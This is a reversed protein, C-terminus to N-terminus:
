CIPVTGDETGSELQATDSSAMICSLADVEIDVLPPITNGKSESQPTFVDVIPPPSPPPRNHRLAHPFTPTLLPFRVSDPKTIESM